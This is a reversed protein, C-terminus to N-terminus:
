EQELVITKNMHEFRADDIGFTEADSTGTNIENVIKYDLFDTSDADYSVGLMNLLEKLNM